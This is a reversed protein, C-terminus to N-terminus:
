ENEIGGQRNMPLFTKLMPYDGSQIVCITAIYKRYKELIKQSVGYINCMETNPLRRKEMLQNRWVDNKLILEAIYQCQARTRKQKPCLKVLEAFTTNWSSLIGSVEKIEHQLSVKEIKRQYENVSLETEWNELGGNETLLPVNRAIIKQEFRFDDILRNRISTQVFPLFAGKDSNYVRVCDAFTLMALTLADDQSQRDKRSRAVCRKIFPLFKEILMCLKESGNQAETVLMTLDDV